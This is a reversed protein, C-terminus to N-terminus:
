QSIKEMQIKYLQKAYKPMIRKAKDLFRGSLNTGFEKGYKEVGKLIYKAMYSGIHSDCGNFGIGNNHMTADSQQEDRTQKEFIAVVATELMFQDKLLCEKIEEPTLIDM